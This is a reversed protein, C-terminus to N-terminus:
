TRHSGATDQPWIGLTKGRPRTGIVVTTAGSDRLNLTHAHGQSGYGLM